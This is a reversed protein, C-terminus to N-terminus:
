LFLSEARYHTYITYITVLRITINGRLLMKVSPAKPYNSNRSPRQRVLENNSSHKRKTAM